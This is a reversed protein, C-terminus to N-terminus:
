IYAPFFNTAVITSDKNGLENVGLESNCAFVTICTKGADIRHIKSAMDSYIMKEAKDENNDNGDNFIVFPKGGDGADGHGRFSVFLSDNKGVNQSLYSTVKDFDAITANRDSLHIVHSPEYHEHNILFNALYEDPQIQYSDNWTDVILAWRGNYENWSQGVTQEFHNSMGDYDLDNNFASGNVISNIQTSYLFTKLFSVQAANQFPTKGNHAFGDKVTHQITTDNFSAAYEAIKASEASDLFDTSYDFASGNVIFDIQTLYLLDKLFDVQRADEVASKGNHAFGDIITQRLHCGYDYEPFGSAYEEIKSNEASHDSADKDLPPQSLVPIGVAISSALVVVVIVAFLARKRM